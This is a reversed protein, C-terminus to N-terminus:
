GDPSESSRESVPVTAESTHPGMTQPEAIRFRVRRAYRTEVRLASNGTRGLDETREAFSAQTLQARAELERGKVLM